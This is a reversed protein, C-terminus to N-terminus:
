GSVRPPPGVVRCRSLRARLALRLAAATSRSLASRVGLALNAVLPINMKIAHRTKASPTQRSGHRALRRPCTHPAAANTSTDLARLATPM